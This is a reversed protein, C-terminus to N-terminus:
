LMLRISFYVVLLGIGLAIGIFADFGISRIKWPSRNRLILRILGTAIATVAFVVTAAMTHGMAAIVACAVVILAVAWEFAPKGENDESVFPHHASM